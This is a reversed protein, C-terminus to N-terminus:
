QVRVHTCSERGCVCPALHLIITQLNSIVREPRAAQSCFVQFNTLFVSELAIKNRQQTRRETLHICYQGCHRAHRLRKSFIFHFPPTFYNYLALLTSSSITLSAWHRRYILVANRGSVTQAYDSLPRNMSLFNSSYRLM